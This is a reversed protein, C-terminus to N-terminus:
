RNTSGVRSRFRGPPEGTERKFAVSLYEVHRFGTRDAIVELTLDTEALLQKVREMRVRLIEGHPTRGVAKRFRSELMRRSVAAQRLVDGADIGDCAHERIFRVAAAVHPDDIALVDTSQREAVGTPPILHERDPVPEGRMLRDLLEAATYGTRPANPVVSSLPPSCLNCLLRDDDVGLVAVEEPVAVDAERCADLLRQGQIDYCALIGVPKPLSRIWAVLREREASWSQAAAPSAPSQFIALSGGAAAVAGAFHEERWRSWNFRPDGCYAFQRFGRRALHEAATRAIAADDTEVWPADPLQRAASVDVAPLRTRRLARAIERNEVRAIVGDGRWRPLWGPPLEGRRMEPLYLSWPGHRQVYSVIGELLGRAYANSTEIL